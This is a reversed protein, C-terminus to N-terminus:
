YGVYAESFDYKAPVEVEVDEAIMAAGRLVAIVEAEYSNDNFIFLEEEFSPNINTQIFTTIAQGVPCSRVFGAATDIGGPLSEDRISDWFNLGLVALLAGEICVPGGSEAHWGYIGKGWGLDEILDAGRNLIESVRMMEERNTPGTPTGVTAVTLIDVYRAM